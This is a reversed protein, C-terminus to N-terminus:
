FLKKNVVVAARRLIKGGRVFGPKLTRIVLGDPLGDVDEKDEITHLNFDFPVRYPEIVGFGAKELVRVGHNRMMIAQEILAADGSRNCFESFDFVVGFLAMAAEAAEDVGDQLFESIEELQLSAEKQRTEIRGLIVEVGSLDQADIVQGKKKWFRM